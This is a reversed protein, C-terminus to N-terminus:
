NQSKIIKELQIKGDAKIIRVMYIGPLLSGTNIHILQDEPHHIEEMWVRGTMDLIQVRTASANELILENLFPNPYIKSDEVPSDIGTATSKLNGMESQIEAQSLVKGYVKVNDLFGGMSGTKNIMQGLRLPANTNFTTHSGLTSTVNIGNYYITAAGTTRNVVLAIHNWANFGFVNTSTTTYHLGAGGSGSEFIIRRDNIGYTNVFLKFGSTVDGSSANAILTRMNYGLTLKAWMMITFENGLNVADAVPMTMLEM